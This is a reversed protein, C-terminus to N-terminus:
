YKNRPKNKDHTYPNTYVMFFFIFPFSRVSNNPTRLCPDPPCTEWKGCFAKVARNVTSRGCGFHEGIQSLSYHGDLWAYCYYLVGMV